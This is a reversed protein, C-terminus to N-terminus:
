LELGSKCDCMASIQVIYKNINLKDLHLYVVLYFDTRTYLHIVGAVLLPPLLFYYNYHRRSAPRELEGSYYTAHLLYM